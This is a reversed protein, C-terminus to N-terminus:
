WVRVCHVDMTICFQSETSSDSVERECGSTLCMHRIAQQVIHCDKSQTPQKPDSSGECRIYQIHGAVNPWQKGWMDPLPMAHFGAEHLGRIIIIITIVTQRKDIQRHKQSGRNDTDKDTKSKRKHRDRLISIQSPLLFM